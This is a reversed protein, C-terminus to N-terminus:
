KISLTSNKKWLLFLGLFLLLPSCSDGLPANESPPPDSNAIRQFVVNSEFPSNTNSTLDNVFLDSGNTHHKLKTINGTSSIASSGYPNSSAMSMQQLSVTQMKAYENGRQSVDSQGLMNSSTQYTSVGFDSVLNSAVLRSEVKSEGIYGAAACSTSCIISPIMEIFQSEGVTNPSNQIKGGFDVGGYNELYGYSKACNQNNFPLYLSIVFLTVLFLAFRFLIITMKEKKM